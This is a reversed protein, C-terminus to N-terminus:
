KEKDKYNSYIAGATFSHQTEFSVNRQIASGTVLASTAALTMGTNMLANGAWADVGRMATNFRTITQDIKQTAVALRDSRKTHNTDM